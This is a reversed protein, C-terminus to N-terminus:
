ELKAAENSREEIYRNDEYLVADNSTSYNHSTFTLTTTEEPISLLRQLDQDLEGDEDDEDQLHQDLEPAPEIPLCVKNQSVQLNDLSTQQHFLDKQENWKTNIEEM